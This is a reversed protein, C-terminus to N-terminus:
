KREGAITEFLLGSGKPNAKAKIRDGAQFEEKLIGSSLPDQLLRRVARKLPRAGFVPDWGEEALLSRASEDVELHIRKSELIKQVKALEIDVIKKLDSPELSRFLIIDDLRNIFEPRFVQRLVKELRTRLEKEALRERVLDSAINSTMVIITNRFNVTRGRGDTLRGDDLIQLLIHFIEPHAKEIEDFLIVSYPRRRVAETLQGGEEHGVYGPPAGILRSVSHKEMYETMDIRIMAREDDFLFESLAKVLETKGVGTPGMFLFSGIPRMPDALGARTRRLAASVNEIAERQGVVRAQLREEMKLLKETEGELMQSVPIGTWQSVISAIDEEDVEEKLMKGGQQMRELNRNAEEMEKKLTILTGYKLEAAKGLNGQREAKEAETRTKEIREKLLRLNKIGEKESLWQAKMNRAREKLVKLEAEIQNRRNASDSDKEKKLAQKEVELQRIKREVEDIEVPMSDIEIRLRSGAEDMLDIAKDPLNRGTIYRHSLRASAILAADQIRVGHHVEYREKLGRLIAITDKVSPEGVFVQQFRRELAADKEIHNRYEALTTAGICRLEGRALAPKLMNSADVSGESAGAGVLTHLEDIFLIIKGSAEEVEKLVAKLRDEFEGRFKAGAILAGLDLTIVEKDRLGEPVDGEAIRRALGEAIATKGVGPEGILVPNNKTRRSLVQIVRRIEEDRGIVPDLKDNRAMDTLNKGYRTLAQYKEEPNLDTVRQTGRVEKLANLVHDRNVGQKRLIRSGPIDAISLIGLLFHETSVYDDRFEQAQTSAIELLKRFTTSPVPESVAEGAVRPLQDIHRELEEQIQEPSSGIRRLIPSVIGDTQRILSVLLHEPTLEPSKMGAANGQASQIAEQAKLTYQDTRM